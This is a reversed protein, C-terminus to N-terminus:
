PSYRARIAAEDEDAIRSGDASDDATANNKGRTDGSSHSIKVKALSEIWTIAKLWGSAMSASHQNGEHCASAALHHGMVTGRRVLKSGTDSSLFNRIEVLDGDLWDPADLPIDFQKKVQNRLNVLEMQTAVTELRYSDFREELADRDKLLTARSRAMLLLCVSVVALIFALLIM